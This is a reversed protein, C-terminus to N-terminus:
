VVDACFIMRCVYWHVSFYIFLFDSQISYSYSMHISHLAVCLHGDITVCRMFGPEASIIEGPIVVQAAKAKRPRSVPLTPLYIEVDM